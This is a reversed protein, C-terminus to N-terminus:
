VIFGLLYVYKVSLKGTFFKAPVPIRAWDKKMMAVSEKFAQAWEPKLQSEKAVKLAACKVVRSNCM